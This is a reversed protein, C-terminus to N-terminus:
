SVFLSQRKIKPLLDIEQLKDRPVSPITLSLHNPVLVILISLTLM